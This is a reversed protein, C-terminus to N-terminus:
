SDAEGIEVKHKKSRKTKKNGHGMGGHFGQYVGGVMKLGGTELEETKKNSAHVGYV